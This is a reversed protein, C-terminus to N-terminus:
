ASQVPVRGNRDRRAVPACGAARASDSGRHLSGDVPRAGRLSRGAGASALSDADGREKRTAVKSRAGVTGGLSRLGLIVSFVFLAGSLSTSSRISVEFIDSPFR